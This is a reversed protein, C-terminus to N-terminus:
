YTWASASTEVITGDAQLLLEWTWEVEVSVPDTIPTPTEDTVGAARSLPQLRLTGHLDLPVKPPVGASLHDRM